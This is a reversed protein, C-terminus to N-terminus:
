GTTGSTVRNEVKCTQVVGNYLTATITTTGRVTGHRVVGNADVTAISPDSSTWTVTGTTAWPYFVVDITVPYPYKDSITFEKKDLTMTTATNPAVSIAPTNSPTPTPTPTPTVEPSPTAEPTPEPSADPSPEPSVDPSPSPAITASPSVNPDIHGAHEGSQILPLLKFIIFWALALIILLSFIVSVVKGATLKKYGGGRLNSKALRKGGRGSQEAEYEACFPCRRYTSSYEEGCKECYILGPRSGPTRKAAM